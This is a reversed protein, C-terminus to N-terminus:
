NSISRTQYSITGVKGDLVRWTADARVLKRRNWGVLGKGRRWDVWANVLPEEDGTGGVLHRVPLFAHQKPLM